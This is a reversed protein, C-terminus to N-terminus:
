GFVPKPNPYVRSPFVQVLTQMLSYNKSQGPRETLMKILVSLEWKRFHKSSVKDTVTQSFTTGRNFLCPSTMSRFIMFIAGGGSIFLQNRGQECWVIITWECTELEKGSFGFPKHAWAILWTAKRLEQSYTLICVLTIGRPLGFVKSIQTRKSM